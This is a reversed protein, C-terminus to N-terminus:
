GLAQLVKQIFGGGAKLDGARVRLVQWAPELAALRLDIARDRRLRDGKHYALGDVYIALRQEPFAFDAITFVKGSGDAIPAQLAPQLGAAQMALLARQELPSACGAAFAALWPEPDDLDAASLSLAEPPADCLGELAGSVQPWNLLAHYRQNEYTKLCRYCASECEPHDLHQLAAAAVQDFEAALKELYGSGGVNPDIFTIVGQWFPKSEHQQQRLGEWLVDLDASDLAFRRQAGALLAYGLTQAWTNLAQVEPPKEKDGPWPFLLRLTEIKARAFLAFPAVDQGRRTCQDAHGFPDESGSGKPASSAPKGKKPKPAKKLVRGCEPCLRFGSRRTEGDGFVGSENPDMVPLGENLWTVTEGRRWELRWGDPLRWRGAVPQAAESTWGPHIEVNNQGYIREEEESLSTEDPRALFGAYDFARLQATPGSWGCRPCGGSLTPDYILSCGGCRQYIWTPEQGQPNWPSSGDLGSVLWRRGRAYVPAGPQYQRLGSPRATTLLAWEDEDYLLRLSAPEVPFEYGPLVGCEALRRLPYASGIEAQQDEQAESQLGLLQQIMQNARNAAWQKGGVEAWNAITTHLMAVQKATREFADQVRGPMAELGQGIAEATLGAAPLVDAAFAEVAIQRAEDRAAELGALLEAVKESQVAGKFSVYASMRSEVGPESLGFAIANVHRQLADQNGLSFAPAPVAGAIMEDPHQFFYQDHPTNRTYSVVLGVRQDRGARGGRQAYNDPRPPVNRLAVAELGGVHIGLELTPSCALVNLANQPDKFQDEYEKRKPGTVQATHEAANLPTAGPDLARRAYRSLKVAKDSLAVLEGNECRPCSRPGDFAAWAPLWVTKSCTDCRLRGPERALRLLAMGANVQYLRAPKGSRGHLDAPALFQEEALAQLLAQVGEPSPTSGNLGAALRALGEQFATQRGKQGWVPRCTVGPPLSNKQELWLGPQGQADAPLGVPNVLRREWQAAQTVEHKNLSQPHNQLLTRSFAGSRRLGDLFQLVAYGFHEPRLGLGAALSDARAAAFAELGSYEVALLGLNELTARYRTNVALDDLLPAEEWALYKAKEEPAKPIIKGQTATNWLYPNDRAEGAQQGLREVLAALTLPSEDQLARVARARMRDYRASFQIFRAQHAADQRSDAFILIRKKEAGPLAEVLGEALVKVAASTGLSVRTIISRSGGQSGCNPCRKRSPYIAAPFPAPQGPTFTLTQPDWGGSVPKLARGKGKRGSEGDAGSEEVYEGDDTERIFVEDAAEAEYDDRKWRGSQYLLWEVQEGDEAAPAVGYAEPNPRLPGAGEAAGRMRWFDAGCNRCLYLPAAASCCAPCESEGHPYLAGCGPNLCRSFEWGGRVFRHARLRLAGPQGAGGPLAALAAGLRLGLATERRLTEGDWAAREPVEAQLRGALDPVAAAGEGLWRGLDWLLRCRRAAEWLPTEPPLGALNELALRLTEPDDLAPDAAFPAAPYGADPPAVVAQKIETIVRVSAPEVGTLRGFFNQIAAQPDGGGTAITASTGVFVPRPREPAARRLHAMLRRVLLAVHTGLAGGYTHVEDLVMFRLRQGKFLPERDAPRVLLYELMQYNTLLLHPPQQRLNEREAQSTNRNYSAVRLSGAWGSAELYQRIRLEQDNALANMPYLLIAVLGARNGTQLSDDIAAQLVPALFAESKGSGTGTSVVLPGAQPGLLHSIAEAQHRYTTGGGSRAQLAAALKPELPLEGWAPGPQFPQHASFYAEGALFGERELADELKQRLLPDRARFETVLHDRYSLIVHM